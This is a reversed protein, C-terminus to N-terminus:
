DHASPAPPTLPASSIQGCAQIFHKELEAYPRHFVAARAIL